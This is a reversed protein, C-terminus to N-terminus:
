FSCHKLFVQQLPLIDTSDNFWYEVKKREYQGCVAWEIGRIWDEHGPLILTKQFQIFNGTLDYFHIQNGHM